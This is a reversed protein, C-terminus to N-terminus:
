LEEIEGKSLKKCKLHILNGYEDEDYDQFAFIINKCYVCWGIFNPFGVGGFGIM